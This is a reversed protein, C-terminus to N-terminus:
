PSPSPAARRRPAVSRATPRLHSVPPLTGTAAFTYPGVGGSATISQSYAIGVNGAPLTTPSLTIALNTLTFTASTAVGRATATAAYGGTTSNATLVPTTATETGSVLTIPCTATLHDGSVTCSTTAFAASAGSSPLTFTVTGGDVPEIAQTATVTVALPHPFPATILTHQNDDAAVKTLSFGQSEFAGIDPVGFRGQNRQDTSLVLNDVPGQGVAAGADLAPSGPLLAFTQTLGGYNGLPALLPNLPLAVTGLLNGNAPLLGGSGDGILNNSGGFSGILEGNGTSNAVITNTLTITGTSKYIGGGQTARNASVTSNTVTVTGNDSYIGGGLRASNASVTSNTVTLTGLNLIGGGGGLQASNASFTSNTVTVTGNDNSIGGGVSAANASFTSNTVTLTSGSQNFIGGGAGATFSAFNASVTSNTVTLTGFNEIGGGSGGGANGHQITLATLYATTGGNVHFVGTGTGSQCSTTFTCRGDVIVNHGTGDITVSKMLTLPGNAQTLFITGSVFSPFLITDNSGFAGPNQGTINPDATTGANIAAIAERLTVEGDGAITSDGIGNVTITAAAAPLAHWLAVVVFLLLAGGLALMGRVASRMGTAM